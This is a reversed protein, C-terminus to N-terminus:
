RMNKKGSGMYGGIRGAMRSASNTMRGAAAAVNKAAMGAPTAAYFSKMDNGAQKLMEGFPKDPVHEKGGKIGYRSDGSSGGGKMSNGHSGGGGGGGLAGEQFLGGTSDKGQGEQFLGGSSNETMTATGAPSASQGGGSGGGSSGSPRGTGGGGSSGSGSTKGRSAANMGSLGGNQGTSGLLSGGGGQSGGGPLGGGGGDGGTLDKMMKPTIANALGKTVGGLAQGYHMAEGLASMPSAGSLIKMVILPVLVYFIIVVVCFVFCFILLVQTSCALVSGGKALATLTGISGATGGAKLGAIAMLWGIVDTLLIDALYFSVYVSFLCMTTNFFSIAVGATQPIVILSIVFPSIVTMIKLIVNLLFEYFWMVLTGIGYAIPVVTRSVVWTISASLSWATNDAAMQAYEEKSLMRATDGSGEGEGGEGSGEFDVGLFQMGKMADARDKEITEIKKGAGASKLFSKVMIVFNAEKGGEGYNNTLYYIVNDYSVMAILTIIILVFMKAFALMIENGSDMMNKIRVVMGLCVAGFAFIGCLRYMAAWDESLMMKFINATEM